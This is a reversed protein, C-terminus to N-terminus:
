ITLKRIRFSGIKRANGVPLKEYINGTLERSENIPYMQLYLSDSLTFIRALLDKNRLGCSGSLMTSITPAPAKVWSIKGGLTGNLDGLEFIISGQRTGDVARFDGRFRGLYGQCDDVVPNAAAIFSSMNKITVKDLLKRSFESNLLMWEDSKLQRLRKEADLQAKTKQSETQLNSDTAASAQTETNPAKIEPQSPKEIPKEAPVSTVSASNKAQQLILERNQIQLGLDALFVQLIQALLEDTKQRDANNVINQLKVKANELESRTYNLEEKTKAIEKYSDSAFFTQEGYGKGVFFAAAM